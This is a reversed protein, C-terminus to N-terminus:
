FDFDEGPNRKIKLGAKEIWKRQEKWMKDRDDDEVHDFGSLHLLGHILLLCIEDELSNDALTAHELAKEPCIAIDGIYEIGTEPDIEGGSPFSLVDTPENVGRFLQNLEQIRDAEVMTVTFDVKQPYYEALEMDAIKNLKDEMDPIVTKELNNTIM